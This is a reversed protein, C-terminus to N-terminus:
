VKLFHVKRDFNGSCGGNGNVGDFGVMIQAANATSDSSASTRLRSILPAPPCMLKPANSSNRHSDGNRSGGDVHGGDDIGNGCVRVRGKGLRTTSKTSGSTKLM